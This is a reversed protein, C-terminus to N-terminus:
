MSEHMYLVCGCVDFVSEWVVRGGRWKKGRLQMAFSVFSSQTPLINVQKNKGESKNEWGKAKGEKGGDVTKM